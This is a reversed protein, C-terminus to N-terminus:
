RQYGWITHMEGAVPSWEQYAIEKDEWGPIKYIFAFPNASIEYSQREM